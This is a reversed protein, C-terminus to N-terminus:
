EKDKKSSKKEEKKTPKKVDVPKAVSMFQELTCAYTQSDVEEVQIETGRPVNIGQVAFAKRVDAKTPSTGVFEIEGMVDAVPKGDVLKLNVATAKYTSITRTFMM